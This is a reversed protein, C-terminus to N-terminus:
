RRGPVREGRMPSVWAALACLVALCGFVVEFIALGQVDHDALFGNVVLGAGALLSIGVAVPHRGPAVALALRLGGLGMLIALGEDRASNWRGLPSHAVLNAQLVTVAVALLLLLWGAVQAFRADTPAGASAELARTTRTAERAHRMAVPSTIM